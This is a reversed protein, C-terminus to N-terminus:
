LTQLRNRLHMNVPDSIKFAEILNEENQSPNKIVIQVYYPIDCQELFIIKTWFNM